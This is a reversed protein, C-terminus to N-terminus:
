LSPSVHVHMCVCVCVGDTEGQESSILITGKGDQIDVDPALMGFHAKMIQVCSPIRAFLHSLSSHVSDHIDMHMFCLTFEVMRVKNQLTAVTVSNTNLKVHAQAHIHMLVLVSLMIVGIHIYICTCMYLVIYIDYPPVRLICQVSKAQLM